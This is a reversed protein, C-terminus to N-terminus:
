FNLVSSKLKSWNRAGRVILTDCLVLMLSEETEEGIWDIIFSAVEVVSLLTLSRDFEHINIYKSFEVGSVYGGPTRM